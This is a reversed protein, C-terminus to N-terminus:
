FAIGHKLYRWLLVLVMTSARRSAELRDGGRLLLERGMIKGDIDAGLHFAYGTVRSSPDGANDMGIALGARCGFNEKIATALSKVAEEKKVPPEGAHLFPMGRLVGFDRAVVGAAFFDGAGPVTSLLASVEGGSFGELVALTKHQERFLGSVAGPLTEGDVGFIFSGLRERVRAEMVEIMEGAGAEDGARATIRLHVESFKATPALTPNSSKLLDSLKEDLKSEGIGCFKLVRSKIIGSKGALKEKLFPIVRDNVMRKFENPPGPLLIYTKGRNELIIGPATGVPNDLARGGEPILAQKLNNDSISINRQDFFRRVVELAFNDKVLKLKLAEALAERSIDDETPGLGGGVIILDARGAAQSIASACRGLNDGVTVQYYLNIGLSSLEVQLYQANTNLIQGLLLETGTFIVEAVMM